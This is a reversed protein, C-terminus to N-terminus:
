YEFANAKVYVTYDKVQGPAGKEARPLLRFGTIRYTKGLDIVLQHPYATNDVTQWFTSEQLDYVKDATRNGSRTEESDAYVVKWHERPLPKGDEGLIDLEAIAAINTGDYNSTANLCFYRGTAAMPFHVEQWGNGEPLTGKHVPTENALRLMQGEARHTEPAQTRLLDLIPQALGAVKAEQPGKLDLVIIENEGEKLWCGPMFLTQQPGIEWFRGMAHGNVWVMGKGWTQMDLFTDGTKDLQFTARYYAPTDLAEGPKYQKDAVFEYFPPLNYVMWNRLQTTDERYIVEVRNTIGKRDHISQDFNVRGMAEVLIDLQTGQPLTEQLPLTFEGQRRDLRGLLKGNAFVQAWDHVEDIHLTGKTEEGLTTRYLITGWGQDFQEM